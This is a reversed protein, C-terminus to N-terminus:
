DKIIFQATKLIHDVQETNMKELLKLLQLKKEDSLNINSTISSNEDYKKINSHGTLYDISVNFLMALKKINEFDPERKGAEYNAYTSRAIGIKNAVMEQTLDSRIREQELRKAMIQSM